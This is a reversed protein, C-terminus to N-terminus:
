YVGQNGCELCLIKELRRRLDKNLPGWLLKSKKNFAKKAITIITKIEKSFTYGRYYLKRSIQFQGRASYRVKWNLILSKEKGNIIVTKM